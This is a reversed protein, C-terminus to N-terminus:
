CVRSFDTHSVLSQEPTGLSSQLDRSFLWSLTPPHDQDEWLWETKRDQNESRELLVQSLSMPKCQLLDSSLFSGLSPTWKFFHVPSTQIKFLLSFSLLNFLWPIFTKLPFHFIIFTPRSFCAWQVGSHLSEWQHSMNEAEQDWLQSPGEQLLSAKWKGSWLCGGDLKGM